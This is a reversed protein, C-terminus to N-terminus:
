RFRRLCGIGSGWSSRTCRRNTVSAGFRSQHV